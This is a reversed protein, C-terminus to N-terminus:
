DETDGDMEELVEEQCYSIGKSPRSWFDAATKNLASGAGHVGM